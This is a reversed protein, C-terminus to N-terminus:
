SVRGWELIRFFFFFFLKCKRKSAKICKGEATLTKTSALAEANKERVCEWSHSFGKVCPPTGYTSRSHPNFGPDVKTYPLLYKWSQTKGYMNFDNEWKVGAEYIIEGEPKHNRRQIM